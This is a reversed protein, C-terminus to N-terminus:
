SEPQDIKRKRCRWTTVIEELFDDDQNSDQTADSDDVSKGTPQYKKDLHNFTLRMPLSVGEGIAIAETDGLSPLFDLLNGSSVSVAANVFQQDVQNTMRMAFVTNCQSLITASIESPRQSVLGLSVGYKRGEKAIRSLARKTPEFGLSNDRPVYRHAEECVLTLPVQGNSWIALEFAMRALVSVVVNVIESPVGSLDVITIPKGNKPIRFIRSLVETMNDLVQLNGFMFAYRGDVSLHEIRNKLRRFPLVDNTRSLKGAMNDLLIMVDSMRYPTPTDLSVRTLSGMRRLSVSSNGGGGSSYLRKAEPILSGLIDIQEERLSDTGVLVEVIEEQNLLWYPLDLNEPTIVEAANGFTSRYEGHPDLLVVRANDSQQLIGRLILALGCSKGSGTTGLVAFHKSLLQDVLIHANMSPNQHLVGIAVKARKGPDYVMKIESKTAPYAKDGLSPYNSIGRRFLSQYQDPTDQIEGVLELEALRMEPDALDTSPMPTSLGSIVGVVISQPTRITVLTGLEARGSETELGGIVGTDIQLIAQSGNLSVMKGIAPRIVALPEIEDVKQVAQPKNM